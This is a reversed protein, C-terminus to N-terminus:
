KEKSKEAQYKTACSQCCFTYIKGDIETTHNALDCPEDAKSGCYKCKTEVKM